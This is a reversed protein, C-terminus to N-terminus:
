TRCQTCNEFWGGGDAMSHATATVTSPITNMPTSSATHIPSLGPEVRSGHVFHKSLGISGLAAAPISTTESLGPAIGTRSVKAPSISSSTPGTTSASAVDTTQPPSDTANAKRSSSLFRSKSAFTSPLRKLSERLSFRERAQPSSM